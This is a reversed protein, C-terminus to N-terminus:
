SAWAELANLAKIINFPILYLDFHGLIKMIKVYNIHASRCQGEIKRCPVELLWMREDHYDNTGYLKSIRGHM